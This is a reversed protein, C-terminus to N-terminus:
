HSSDVIVSRQLRELLKDIFSLHCRGFQFGLGGDGLRYLTSLDAESVSVRPLSTTRSRFEAVEEAAVNCNVPEKLGGHPPILDSM